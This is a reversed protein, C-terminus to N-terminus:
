DSITSTIPNKPQYLILFLIMALIFVWGLACCFWAFYKFSHSEERRREAEIDKNKSIRTYFLTPMTPNIEIEDSTSSRVDNNSRSIIELNESEIEDSGDAHIAVSEDAVHKEDVEIAVDNAAAAVAPSGALLAAEIMEAEALAAAAAADEDQQIEHVPADEEHVLAAAAINAEHQQHKAEEEEQLARAIAEDNHVREDESDVDYSLVEHVRQLQAVDGVYSPNHNSLSM